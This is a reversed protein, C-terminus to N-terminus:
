SFVEAACEKKETLFLEEAADEGLSARDGAMRQILDFLTNVWGSFFCVLLIAWRFASVTFSRTSSYRSFHAFTLFFSRDQFSSSRSRLFSMTGTMPRLFAFSM